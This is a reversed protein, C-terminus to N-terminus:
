GNSMSHAFFGWNHIKINQVYHKGKNEAFM